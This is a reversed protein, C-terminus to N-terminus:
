FHGNLIISLIEYRNPKKYLGPGNINLSSFYNSRLELSLHSIQIRRVNFGQKSTVVEYLHSKSLSIVQEDEVINYFVGNIILTDPIENTYVKVKYMTFVSDVEQANVSIFLSILILFSMFYLLSNKM